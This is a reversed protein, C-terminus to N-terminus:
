MLMSMNLLNRRSAKQYLTFRDKTLDLHMGNKSLNKRARYFMMRNEFETFRAIVPKVNKESLDNKGIRYTSDLVVDLIDCVSEEKISKM